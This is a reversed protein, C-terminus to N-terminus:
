EKGSITARLATRGNVKSFALAIVPRVLRSTLILTAKKDILLSIPPDDTFRRLGIASTRRGNLLRMSLPMGFWFDTFAEVVHRTLGSRPRAKM